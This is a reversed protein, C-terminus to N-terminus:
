EQGEVVNVLFRLGGEEVEGPEAPVSGWLLGDHLELGELQGIGRETRLFIGEPRALEVLLEVFMERRLALGLATFQVVLWRDYRDVALGSLGDGESFVLRCAKGPGDLGLLPGRLWLAAELRDRFFARDLPTAPSWSYLRVR